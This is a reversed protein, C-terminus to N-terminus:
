LFNVIKLDRIVGNCAPENWKGSTWVKVNHYQFAQGNNDSKIIEGDLIVTYRYVGQNLYRQHIEVTYEKNLILPRNVGSFMNGNVASQVQVWGADKEYFIAPNRDGYKDQNGGASVHLINCHRKGVNALITFKLSVSWEASMM